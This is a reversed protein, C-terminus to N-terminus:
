EQEKELEDASIFEGNAIQEEANNLAENYDRRTMPSGDPHFAVPDDQYYNEFVSNVISLVKYDARDLFSQIRDKLEVSGM